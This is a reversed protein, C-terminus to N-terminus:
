LSLIVMTQKMGRLKENLDSIQCRINNFSSLVTDIDQPTEKVTSNKYTRGLNILHKLRFYKPLEQEIEIIRIARQLLFYAKASSEVRLVM